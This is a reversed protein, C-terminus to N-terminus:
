VSSPRQTSSGGGGLFGRPVLASFSGRTTREVVVEERADTEPVTAEALCGFSTQNEMAFRARRRIVEKKTRTAIVTRHMVDIKKICSKREKMCPVSTIM